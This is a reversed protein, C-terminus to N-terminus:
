AVHLLNVSQSQSFWALTLVVLSSLLKGGEGFTEVLKALKDHEFPINVVM